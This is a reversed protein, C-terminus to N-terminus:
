STEAPLGRGVWDSWSGSYLKADPRGAQALALVDVCATIGSGCYVVIEDAELVEPPPDGLPDFPVNVAGPIHGAVPDIPEVEGRYRPPVRADVVVLGPEGLRSELEDAEMTDGSRARPEFHAQVIGEAGARLQGLWGSLGGALVAVEDHGLHRLLWWLRAAGGNMGQDYAVVFVGPGIGAAGAARAFDEEAPLPHRGGPTAPPSSLEAEVDLFSAGPVHGELYLERGRGPNGLEWRCDVFQYKNSM